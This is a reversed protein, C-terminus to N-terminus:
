SKQNPNKPLRDTIFSSLLLLVGIGVLAISLFTLKVGANGAVPMVPPTPQTEEPQTTPQEEAPPQEGPTATPVVPTLTPVTTPPSTPTEPPLTPTEPPPAPTDPPPVPTGPPPAPTESAEQAMVTTSPLCILGAVLVLFALTSWTSHLCIRM